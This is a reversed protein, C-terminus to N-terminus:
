DIFINIEMSNLGFHEVLIYATPIASIAAGVLIKSGYFNKRFQTTEQSEIKLKQSIRDLLSIQQLATMTAALLAMAIFFSSFSAIAIAFQIYPVGEVPVRFGNRIAYYATAYPALAGLIFSVVVSKAAVVIAWKTSTKLSRIALKLDIYLATALSRTRAPRAANNRYFSRKLSM